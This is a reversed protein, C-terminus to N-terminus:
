VVVCFAEKLGRVLGLSYKMSESCTQVKITITNASEEHEVLASETMVVADLLFLVIIDCNM